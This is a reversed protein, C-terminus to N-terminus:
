EGGIARGETLARIQDETLQITEQELEVVDSSLTAELKTGAALDPADPNYSQEISGSVNEFHKELHKKILNRITTRNKNLAEINLMKKLFAIDEKKEQITVQLARISQQALEQCFATLETARKATDDLLAPKQEERAQQVIEPTEEERKQYLQEQYLGILKDIPVDAILHERRIALIITRQESSSLSRFDIEKPGPDNCTLSIKLEGPKGLFWMSPGISSLTLALNM